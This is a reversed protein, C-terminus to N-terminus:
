LFRKMWTPLQPMAAKTMEQSRSIIQPELKDLVGNCFPVVLNEGVWSGVHYAVDKVDLQDM